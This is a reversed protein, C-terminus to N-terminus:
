REEIRPERRLVTVRVFAPAEGIGLAQAAAPSLRIAGSRAGIFLPMDLTAGTALNEVRGHEARPLGPAVAWFGAAADEAEVRVRGERAYVQPALVDVYALRLRVPDADQGAPGSRSGGEPACGAALAALAWGFARGSWLGAKAM